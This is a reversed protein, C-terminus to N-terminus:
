SAVYMKMLYVTELFIRHTCRQWISFEFSGKFWCNVHSFCFFFLSFNQKCKKDWQQQWFWLVWLHLSIKCKWFCLRRQLWNQSAAINKMKTNKWKRHLTIIKVLRRDTFLYQIKFIKLHFYNTLMLKVQERTSNSHM